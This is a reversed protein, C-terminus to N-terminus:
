TEAEEEAPENIMAWLVVREGTERNVLCEAHVLRGGIDNLGDTPPRYTIIEVPAADPIDELAKRLQGVTLQQNQIM